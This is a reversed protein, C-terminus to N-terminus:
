RSRWVPRAPLLVETAPASVTGSLAAGCPEVADFREALPGAWGPGEKEQVVRTEGRLAHASCGSYMGNSQRGTYLQRYLTKRDTSIVRSPHTCSVTVTAGDKHTRRRGEFAAPTTM